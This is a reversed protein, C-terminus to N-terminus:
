SRATVPPVNVCLAPETMPRPVPPDNSARAPPLTSRRKVGAALRSVSPENVYRMTSAVFELILEGADVAVTGIMAIRCLM